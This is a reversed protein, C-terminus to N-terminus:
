NFALKILETNPYNSSDIVNSKFLPLTMGILNPYRGKTKNNNTVKLSKLKISKQEEHLDLDKLSLENSSYYDLISVSTNTPMGIAFKLEATIKAESKKIFNELAWEFLYVTLPKSNICFIEESAWRKRIDSDFPLPIPIIDFFGIRNDIFKQILDINVNNDFVKKITEYYTGIRNENFIYQGIYENQQNIKLPPSELTIIKEVKKDKLGEYLFQLNSSFNTILKFVADFQEDDLISEKKIVEYKKLISIIIEKISTAKEVGYLYSIAVNYDESTPKYNDDPYLIKKLLVLNNEKINEEMTKIKKM